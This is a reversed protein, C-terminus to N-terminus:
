HLRADGPLGSISRRPTARTANHQTEQTSRRHMPTCVTCFSETPASPLWALDRVALVVVVLPHAGCWRLRHGPGSLSHVFILVTCFRLRALGGGWRAGDNRLQRTSRGHGEQRQAAIRGRLSRADPVTVTEDAHVCDVDFVDMGAQLRDTQGVCSLEDRRERTPQQGSKQSATACASLLGARLILIPVRDISARRWLIFSCLPPLSVERSKRLMSTIVQDFLTYADATSATCAGRHRIRAGHGCGSSARFLLTQLKSPHM